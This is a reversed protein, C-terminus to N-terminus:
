RGRRLDRVARVAEAPTRGAREAHTRGRAVLDDLEKHALYRRAAEALLEDATKGEAQAATNMASRLDDPIHVNNQSAMAAEDKM